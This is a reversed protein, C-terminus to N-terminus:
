AAEEVDRRYEIVDQIQSELAGPTSFERGLLLQNISVMVTILTLNGSVLGSFVYFLPQENALPAWQLGVVGAVVAFLLALVIGAVVLRNGDLLVWERVRDTKTGPKRGSGTM